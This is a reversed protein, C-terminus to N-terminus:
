KKTPSSPGDKFQCKKWKKEKLETIVFMGNVPFQYFRVNDYYDTIRDIERKLKSLDDNNMKMSEWCSRQVKKFGMMSLLEVLARATDISGPDLVVSVFMDIAYNFCAIKDFM